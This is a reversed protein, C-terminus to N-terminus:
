IKGMDRLMRAMYENMADRSVVGEFTNMIEDPIMDLEKKIRPPGGYKKAIRKLEMMCKHFEPSNIELDGNFKM